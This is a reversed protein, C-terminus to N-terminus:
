RELGTKRVMNWAWKDCQGETWSGRYIHGVEHWFLHNPRGDTTLLKETRSSKVCIWGQHELGKPNHIKLYEVYRKKAWHAHASRRMATCTGKYNLKVCGGLNIGKVGYLRAHSMLMTENDLVIPMSFTTMTIEGGKQANREM